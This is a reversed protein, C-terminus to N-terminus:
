ANTSNAGPAARLYAAKQDQPMRAISDELDSIDMGDLDDYTSNRGPEIPASSPSKGLTQPVKGPKRSQTAAALKDKSSAVATAAGPATYNFAEFAVAQAKEFLDAPAINGNATRYVTEIAQQMAQARLPNAIFDQNGREWNIAAVNFEADASAAADRIRNEWVTVEATYRGEERSLERQAKTFEGDNLDGDDYKAQLADYEADFDKPPEPKDPAAPATAQAPEPEDAKTDEAEADAAPAGEDAGADADAETETTETTKEGEADAGEAEVEADDGHEALEAALRAEEETPEGGNHEHEVQNEDKTGM